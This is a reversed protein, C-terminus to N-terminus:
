YLKAFVRHRGENALAIVYDVDPPFNKAAGDAGSRQLRQSCQLRYSTSPLRRLSGNLRGM